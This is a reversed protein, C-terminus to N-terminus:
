LTLDGTFTVMSLFANVSLGIALVIFGAIMSRMGKNKGEADDSRFGMALQVAGFFAIAAGLYTTWGAIYRLINQFANTATAAGVVMSMMTVAALVALIRGMNKGVVKRM